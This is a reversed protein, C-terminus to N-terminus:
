GPLGCRLLSVAVLALNHFSFIIESVASSASNESYRWSLRANSNADVVIDKLGKSGLDVSSAAPTVLRQNITSQSRM